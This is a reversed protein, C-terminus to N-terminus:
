LYGSSNSKERHLFGPRGFRRGAQNNITRDWRIKRLRWGKQIAPPRNSARANDAQVVVSPRKSPGEAIGESTGEMEGVAEGVVGGAAGGVATGAEGTGADGGVAVGIGSCVGTGPNGASM